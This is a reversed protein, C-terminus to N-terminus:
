IWDCITHMFLFLEYWFAFSSCEVKNTETSSHDVMVVSFIERTETRKKEAVPLGIDKENLLYANLPPFIIIDGGINLM